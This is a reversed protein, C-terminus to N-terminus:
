GKLYSMVVLDAGNEGEYLYLGFVDNERNSLFLDPSSDYNGTKLQDLVNLYELKATIVLNENTEEATLKDVFYEMYSDMILYYVVDNWLDNNVPFFMFIEDARSYDPAIEFRIHPYYTNSTGEKTIEMVYQHSVNEEILYPKISVDYQAYSSDLAKKAEEDMWDLIEDIFGYRSAFVSHFNCIIILVCLLLVFIKKYM